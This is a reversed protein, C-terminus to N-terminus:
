APYEAEVVRVGLWGRVPKRRARTCGQAELWEALEDARSVPAGESNAWELFADRLERNSAFADQEFILRDEGFRALIDQSSRYATTDAIVAAPEILRCDDRQWALCGEILWNLIGSAESRLKERLMPDDTKGKFESGWQVVRIRRWVASSGAAVTPLHNTLLWLSHSPPFEWETEYLRRAKIPDGGTLRKMNREDLNVRRKLEDVVALRARFLCVTATDHADFKREELLATTVSTAYGGLVYALADRYTGKGNGGGGYHIIFAHNIQEGVLASGSVRQLYNRRTADPHWESLCQAWRPAKASTDYEAACRRTILDAPLAQRFRGTKLDVVGNAVGLLWPDADLQDHSTSCLDRVQRVMATLRGDSASRIAWARARKAAKNDPDRRLSEAAQRKMERVVNKALAQMLTGSDDLNWWGSDWVIFKKWERVYRIRAGYMEALRAGNGMDTDGDEDARTFDAPATPTPMELDAVFDLAADNFGNAKALDRLYPFGVAFGARLSEWDRRVVEPANVGGEWRDCWETAIDFADNPSDVGSAKIAALIKIYKERGVGEGNAINAVVERLVEISPARLHTQEVATRKGSGGGVSLAIGHAGLAAALAPQLTATVWERSIPPLGGNALQEAILEIGGPLGGTREYSYPKQTDPHIGSILVQQGDGLVEICAPKGNTNLVPRAGSDLLGFKIKGFAAGDLRGIVAFKPPLGIRFLPGDIVSAIATRAADNLIPDTVDVDITPHDCTLLGVNGSELEEPTARYRQWGSIAPAKSGRPIPIMRLGAACLEKVVESYDHAPPATTSSVDTKRTRGNREPRPQRNWDELLVGTV